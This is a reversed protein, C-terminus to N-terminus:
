VTVTMKMRKRLFEATQSESCQLLGEPTGQFIVRGGNKGGGPGMDIVWDAQCIVDQDHEVVIVTNGNNVM